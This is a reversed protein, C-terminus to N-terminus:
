PASRSLVDLAFVVFPWFLLTTLVAGLGCARLKALVIREAFVVRTM